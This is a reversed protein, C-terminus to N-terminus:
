WVVSDHQLLREASRRDTMFAASCSLFPARRAPATVPDAKYPPLWIM